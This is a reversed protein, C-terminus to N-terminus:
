YCGLVILTFVPVHRKRYMHYMKSSGRICCWHTMFVSCALFSDGVWLFCPWNHERPSRGSIALMTVASIIKMIDAAYFLILKVFVFFCYYRISCSNRPCYVNLFIVNITVPRHSDTLVHLEVLGVTFFGVHFIYGCIVLESVATFSNCIIFIHEIM